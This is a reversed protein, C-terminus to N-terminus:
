NSNKFGPSANKQMITFKIPSLESHVGDKNFNRIKGVLISLSEVLM